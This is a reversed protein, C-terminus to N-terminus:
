DEPIETCSYIDFQQIGFRAGFIKDFAQSPIWHSFLYIAMWFTLRDTMKELDLAWPGLILLGVRTIAVVTQQCPSVVWKSFLLNKIENVKTRLPDPSAEKRLLIFLIDVISVIMDAVIAVPTFAISAILAVNGIRTLTPTPAEVSARKQYVQYLPLDNINAFSPYPEYTTGYFRM